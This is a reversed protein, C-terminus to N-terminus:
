GWLSLCRNNHKVLALVLSKAEPTYICTHLQCIRESSVTVPFINQHYKCHFLGCQYIFVGHLHKWWTPIGLTKALSTLRLHFINLPHM